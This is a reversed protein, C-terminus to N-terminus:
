SCSSTTPIRVVQASKTTGVYFWTTVPKIPTRTPQSGQVYLLRNEHRTKQGVDEYDFEVWIIGSPKHPQHLQGVKVVNSAGNTLGDDTRVNLAIETREGEALRLKTQWSDQTWNWPFM